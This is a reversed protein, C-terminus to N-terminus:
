AKVIAGFKCNELCVGCKICKNKDITHPEKVKGDIADVPCNRV